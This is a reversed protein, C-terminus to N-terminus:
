VRVRAVIMERDGMHGSRSRRWVQVTTAEGVATPDVTPVEGVAQRTWRWYRTSRWRTWTARAWEEVDAETVAAEGVTTLDEDLVALDEGIAEVSTRGREGEEVSM